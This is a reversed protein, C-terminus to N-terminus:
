TWLSLITNKKASMSLAEEGNKALDTKCGAAELTRSIVLRNSEIDDVILIDADFKPPSLLLTKATSGQRAYQTDPAYDQMEESIKVDLTLTFTSGANLASEIEIKGNMIKALSQCISLGLGSSNVNHKQNNKIQSFKQFLTKRQEHDIGTGTDSVAITIHATNQNEKILKTFLKIEGSQTFKIANSILNSVIQRIKIQDATVFEPLNADFLFEYVLEKEQAASKFLDFSARLAKELQFRSEHIEMKGSEIKSFELVDNVISLLIDGSSIITDVYLRQKATLKSNNLLDATGIIGNLPTRIEHSMNAVFDSKANNAREAESKAINLDAYATKLRNINHFYIRVVKQDHIQLFSMFLEYWKGNINQEVFRPKKDVFCQMVSKEGDETLLYRIDGYSMIDPIEHVGIQNIYTIKLSENIEIIPEPSHKPFSALIQSQIAALQIVDLTSQIVGIEDQTKAFPKMENFDGDALRSLYQTVKHLPHIFRTKILRYFFYLTFLFIGQLAILSYKLIPTDASVWLSTIMMTCLGILALSILFFRFLIKLNQKQFINFASLM